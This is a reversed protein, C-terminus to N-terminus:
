EDVMLLNGDIATGFPMREDLEALAQQDGEAVARRRKEVLSAREDHSLANFVAAACRREIAHMEARYALADLLVPHDEIRAAFVVERVENGEIAPMLSMLFGPLDLQLQESGQGRRVTWYGGDHLARRMVEYRALEVLRDAEFSRARPTLQEVSDSLAALELEAARQLEALRAQVGQRAHRSLPGLTRIRLGQDTALSADVRERVFDVVAGRNLESVWLESREVAVARGAVAQAGAEASTPVPAPESTNMALSHLAFIGILGAAVYLATRM